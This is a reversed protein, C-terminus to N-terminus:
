NDERIHRLRLVWVALNLAFFIATGWPFLSYEWRIGHISGMPLNVAAPLIMGYRMWDGAGQVMAQASAGQILACVLHASTATLAVRRYSRSGSCLSCWNFICVAAMYVVMLGVSPCAHNLTCEDSTLVRLLQIINWVHCIACVSLAVTSVTCNIATKM